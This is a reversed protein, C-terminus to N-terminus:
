YCCYGGIRRVFPLHAWYSYEQIMKTELITRSCYISIGSIATINVLNFINALLMFQNCSNTTNFTSWVQFYKCAWRQKYTCDFGCNTWCETMQTVSRNVKTNSAFFVVYLLELSWSLIFAYRNILFLITTLSIKSKWIVEIESSLTLLYEYM